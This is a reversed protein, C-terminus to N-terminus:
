KLTIENLVLQNGGAANQPLEPIWIMFSSATLPESLTMTTQGATIPGEAMVKGSSPADPVTDRIQINGGSSEADLVVETIVAEENLEIHLGIGSMPNMTAQVYTWTTWSTSPNADIANRVSEPNDLTAPDTGAIMGADPSILTANVIVPPAAPAPESELEAPGPTSTTEEPEEAPVSSSVDSDPDILTVPDFPATLARVGLWGVVVVGIIFLALVVRSANLLQDREKEYGKLAAERAAAKEQRARESAAARQPDIKPVRIKERLTPAAPGPEGALSGAITTPAADEFRDKLSLRQPGASDADDDAVKDAQATDDLEDGNLEDAGDVDNSDGDSDSDADTETEAPLPMPAPVSSLGPWAVDSLEDHSDINLEEDIFARVDDTTSVRPPEDAEHEATADEVVDQPDTNTDQDGVDVAADAHDQDPADTDHAEHIDPEIPEDGAAGADGLDDDVSEAQDNVDGSDPRESMSVAAAGAVGAVASTLAPWHTPLAEADDDTFILTDDATPAKTDVSVTSPADVEEPDTPEPLALVDIDQWPVLRRTLDAPSAAGDGDRESALTAALPQPLDLNAAEAIVADHEHPEPLDRGLLLSAMLVTLGRAEDRDLAGMDKSTDAGALAAHVGLGDVVVDGEPTLFISDATTQLHRVGRRAGTAIASTAEGMIAHVQDAPLPEGLYDAVPRGPPIETIYAHDDDAVVQVISVLHPDSVLAARRAADAIAGVQECDPDIVVARVLRSLAMDRAIWATANDFGPQYTYPYVLDFRGAIRQGARAYSTSM